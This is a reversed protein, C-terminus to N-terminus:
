APPQDGTQPHECLADLVRVLRKREDHSMQDWRDLQEQVHQIHPNKAGRAGIFYTAISATIMGITGIGVLMLVAAVIRGELTRPAFDGYGVTTTTVLSWWLADHLEGVRPEVERIVLGGAIVLATTVLLVYGLQNTRLISRVTASIRWLVAFGRVARLVRVLRFLRAIRLAGVPMIAILDLWHERVFQWNGRAM